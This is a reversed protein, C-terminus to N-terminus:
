ACRTAKRGLVWFILKCNRGRHRQRARHQKVHVTSYRKRPNDSRRVIGYRALTRPSCTHTSLTGHYAYWTISFTVCTRVMSRYEVYTHPVCVTSTCDVTIGGTARACAHLLVVCCLMGHALTCLRSRGQDHHWRHELVFQGKQKQHHPCAQHRTAHPTHRGTEGRRRGRAVKM